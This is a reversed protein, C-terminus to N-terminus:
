DDSEGGFAFMSIILGFLSLFVIIDGFNFGLINIYWISSLMYEFANIMATFLRLMENLFDFM